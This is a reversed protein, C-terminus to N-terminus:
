GVIEKLRRLCAERDATFDGEEWWRRLQDLLRGVRSGPPIGLATVDRGTLPFEPPSWQEALALLKQRRAPAIRGEAALLLM